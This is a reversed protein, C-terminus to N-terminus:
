GKHLLCSVRCLLGLSSCWFVRVIWLWSWCHLLIYITLTINVKSLYHLFEVMFSCHKLSPSQLPCSFIPPLLPGAEAPHQWRQRYGSEWFRWLNLAAATQVLLLSWLDLSFLALTWISSSPVWFLLAPPMAYRVELQAGFCSCSSCCQVPVPVSAHILPASNPLVSGCVCDASQAKAFPDSAHTPPFFAQKIFLAPFMDAHLVSVLGM